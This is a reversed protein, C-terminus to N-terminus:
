SFLIFSWPRLWMASWSWMADGEDDAQSKPSGTAGEDQPSNTSAPIKVSSVQTKIGGVGNGSGNATLVGNMPQTPASPMMMPPNNVGNALDQVVIKRNPPPGMSNMSNFNTIQPMPMPMSQLSSLVSIDSAGQNFMPIKSPMGQHQPSPQGLGSKPLTRTFQPSNPVAPPMQPFLHNNVAGGVVINSNNSPNHQSQGGMM